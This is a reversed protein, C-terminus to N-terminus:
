IAGGASQAEEAGLPVAGSPARLGYSVVGPEPDQVDTEQKVQALRRAIRSDDDQEVGWGLRGDERLAASFRRANLTEMVSARSYGSRRSVTAETTM